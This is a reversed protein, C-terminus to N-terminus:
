DDALTLKRSYAVYADGAKTRLDRAQADRKIQEAPSVVVSTNDIQDARKEYVNGLRAFFGAAPDPDLTQEYALVEMAGTFNQRNALLESAKRLGAIADDRFRARTQKTAIEDVLDHLDTLGADDEKLM